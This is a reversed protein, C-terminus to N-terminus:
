HIMETAKRAIRAAPQNAEGGLHVQVFHRRFYATLYRVQQIVQAGRLEEAVTFKVDPCFSCYGSLAVGGRVFVLHPKKMLFCTEWPGSRIALATSNLSCWLQQYTAIASM